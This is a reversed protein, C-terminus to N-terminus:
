KKLTDVADGLKEELKKIGKQNNRFVLFGAVFGAALCIVAEVLVFVIGFTM